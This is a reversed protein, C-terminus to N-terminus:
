TWKESLVREVDLRRAYLNRGIKKHKGWFGRRIQHRVTDHSLKTYQAIIKVPVLDGFVPLIVRNMDAKGKTM